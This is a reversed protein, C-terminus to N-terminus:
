IGSSQEAGRALGVVSRCCVDGDCMGMVPLLRDPLVALRHQHQAPACASRCSPRCAHSARAEYSVLSVTHMSYLMIRAAMSPQFLIDLAQSEVKAVATAWQPETPTPVVLLGLYTAHSAARTAGAEPVLPSNHLMATRSHFRRFLLASLCAVGCLRRGVWGPSLGAGPGAARM